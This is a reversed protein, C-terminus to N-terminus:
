LMMVKNGYSSQSFAYANGQGNVVALMPEYSHVVRDRGQNKAQYLAKDARAYVAAFSDDSDFVTTGFSSTLSQGPELEPHHMQRMTLALHLTFMPVADHFTPKILIAFEEGGMRAAFGYRNSELDLSRGVRRLIVDGIHHGYRDNISKFHDIDCLILIYGSLDGIAEMHREFGRRNALGTLPDITAEIRYITVIDLASLVLIVLAAINASIGSIFLQMDNHLAANGHALTETFLGPLLTGTLRMINGISIIMLTIWVLKDVNSTASKRVINATTALLIFAWINALVEQVAFNFYLWGYIIQGAIGMAFITALFIKPVPQRYRKAMAIVACVCLCWFFINAIDSGNFAPIASYPFAIDFLCAVTGFFYTLAMWGTFKLRKEYAYIGAFLIAFIALNFPVLYEFPNTLIHM